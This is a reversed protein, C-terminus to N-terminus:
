IMERVESLIAEWVALMMIMPVMYNFVTTWVGVTPRQRPDNTM